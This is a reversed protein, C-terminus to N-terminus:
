LLCSPYDRALVNRISEAVRQDFWRPSQSLEDALAAMEALNRRYVIVGGMDDPTDYESLMYRSVLHGARWGETHDWVTICLTGVPNNSTM